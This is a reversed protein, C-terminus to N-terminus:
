DYICRNFYWFCQYFTVPSDLKAIYVNIMAIVTGAIKACIILYPGNIDTIHQLDAPFGTWVLVAVDKATMLTDTLYVQGM